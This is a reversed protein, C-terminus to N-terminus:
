NRCLVRSQPKRYELCGLSPLGIRRLDASRIKYNLIFDKGLVKETKVEENSLIAETLLFM